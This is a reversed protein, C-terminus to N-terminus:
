KGQTAGSKRNKDIIAYIIFLFAVLRILYIYAIFEDKGIAILLVREVALLLFAAGFFGFFRDHSRRQFQFFFMGIAWYGLVMAGSMADTLFSHTM